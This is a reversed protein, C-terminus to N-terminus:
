VVPARYYDWFAHMRDVQGPTFQWMCPDDVYDMFNHIPDVGPAPCTDTTDPPCGFAPWSEAPTDAVYDNNVDCGGEFTHFLGLWHGVEHVATDGLNVGVFAGGPIAKVNLSLGDQGPAALYDSPFTAWGLYASGDANNRPGVFYINLLNAGGKHMSSRMKRDYYTGPKAHYWSDRRISNKGVVTFHFGAPANTASQGGAYAANLVDISQQIQTASAYKDKRHSGKIVHVYVPVEVTAAVRANSRKHLRMVRQVQAKDAATVPRTDAARKIHGKGDTKPVFCTSQVSPAPAAVAPAVGTALGAVAVFLASIAATRKM